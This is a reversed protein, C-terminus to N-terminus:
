AASSTLTQRAENTQWLEVAQRLQGALDSGAALRSVLGDVYFISRIFRVMERDLFVGNDRCIAFLDLFAKTVSVRFHVRGPVAPQEYWQPAAEWIQRRVAALDADDELTCVDLLCEYTARLDGSAYALILRVMRRRTDQTLFAVIGFDVYGVVNGPLILLNAPHLDAHFAGSLFADRLFNSIINATFESAVFGEAHIAALREGYDRAAPTEVFRFYEAVSPGELFEITLVRSTTLEWCVKPIRETAIGAANRGLNECYSAERRYDLEDRTWSSLERVSERLFYLSRIRLTVILRVLQELLLCDREFIHAIGPRQVKVAVASGDKLVARHVQGISAAAIPTYDFQRYLNEPMGGLEEAVIQEVQRRPFPPIRDLLALLANCYEPPFLEVQLSLVQGFKLFAGGLDQLGQRLLEPGDVPLGRMRRLLAVALLRLAVAVAQILRRLSALRRHRNHVLRGIAEWILRM